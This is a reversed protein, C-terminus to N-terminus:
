GGGVTPFFLIKDGERIKTGLRKLSEIDRGNVLIRFSSKLANTRPDILNERFAIGYQESLFEVLEGVTKAPTSVELKRSKLIDGLAAYAQVTVQPM